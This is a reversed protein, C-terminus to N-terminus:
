ALCVMVGVGVGHSFSDKVVMIGVMSCVLSGGECGIEDPLM